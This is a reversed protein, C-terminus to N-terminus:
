ELYTKDCVMLKKIPEHVDFHKMLKKNKNIHFTNIVEIFFYTNYINYQLMYQCQKRVIITRLSKKNIGITFVIHNILPKPIRYTYIEYTIAKLLYYWAFEIHIGIDITNLFMTSYQDYFCLYELMQHLIQVYRFSIRTMKFKKFFKYVVIRINDYLVLPLIFHNTQNVINKVNDTVKKTYDLCSQVTEYVYMTNSKFLSGSFYSKVIDLKIYKANYKKLAFFTLDDFIHHIQSIDKPIVSAIFQITSNSIKFKNLKFKNELYVVCEDHTPENLEFVHTYQVLDKQVKILMLYGVYLIADKEFYKNNKVNENFYSMVEDIKSFISCCETEDLVYLKPKSKGGNLISFINNKSKIMEDLFDNIKTENTLRNVSLMEIEYGLEDAIIEIRRSKGIGHKGNIYAIKKESRNCIRDSLWEKIETWKQRDSFFDSFSKIEHNNDAISM